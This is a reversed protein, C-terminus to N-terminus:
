GSKCGRCQSVIAETVKSGPGPAEFSRLCHVGGTKPRSGVLKQSVGSGCAFFIVQPHIWLNANAGPFFFLM